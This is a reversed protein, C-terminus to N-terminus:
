HIYINHLVKQMLDNKKNLKKLYQKSVSLFTYPITDFMKFVQPQKNNITMSTLLKFFDYTHAIINEVVTFTFNNLHM